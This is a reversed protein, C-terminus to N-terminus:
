QTGERAAQATSQEDDSIDQRNYHVIKKKDCLPCYFIVDYKKTLDGILPMAEPREEVNIRFVM